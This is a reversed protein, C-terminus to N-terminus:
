CIRYDRPRPAATTSASSSRLTASEHFLPSRRKSIGAALVNSSPLRLGLIRGHDPFIVRSTIASDIRNSPNISSSWAQGPLFWARENVRWAKLKGMCRLCSLSVVPARNRIRCRQSRAGGTAHHLNPQRCGAGRGSRHVDRGWARHLAGVGRLQVYRDHHVDGRPVPAEQGYAALSIEMEELVVGAKM